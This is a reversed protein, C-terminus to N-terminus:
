QPQLPPGLFPFENLFESDNPVDDGTPPGGNFILSFLTDIVDDELARGNPFEDARTLDLKLTDPIAVDALRAINEESTGLEELRDAIIQGFNQADNQPLARNFRDRLGFPIFVTSVGPNGTRDLARGARRFTGPRRPFTFGSIQLQDQGDSVLDAPFAVVIASVNLDAFSNIGRFAGANGTAVFRNFGVADFFFPDDQEAAGKVLKETIEGTVDPSYAETTDAGWYSYPRPGFLEELKAFISALSDHQDDVQIIAFEVLKRAFEKDGWAKLRGDINMVFNAYDYASVDLLGRWIDFGKPV